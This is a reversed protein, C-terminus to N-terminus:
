ICFVGSCCARIDSFDVTLCEFPGTTSGAELQSIGEVKVGLGLHATFINKHM